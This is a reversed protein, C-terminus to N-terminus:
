GKEEIERKELWKERLRKQTKKEENTLDDDIYMREGKREKL